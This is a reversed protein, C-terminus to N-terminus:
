IKLFKDLIIALACMIAIEVIDHVNFGFLGKKM